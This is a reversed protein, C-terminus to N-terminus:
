CGLRWCALTPRRLAQWPLTRSQGDPWVEQLGHVDAIWTREGTEFAKLRATFRVPEM